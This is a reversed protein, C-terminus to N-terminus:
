AEPEPTTEHYLVLKLTKHTVVGFHNQPDVTQVRYLVDGIQLRDEEVVGAGPLVSARADIKNSIDEPTLTVLEIWIPGGAAVYPVDDGGYLAEDSPDKRWVQASQNFSVIMRAIERAVPSSSVIGPIEGPTPLNSESLDHLADLLAQVIEGVTPAHSSAVTSLGAFASKIASVATSNPADVLDMKAGPAAASKAADYASILTMAAGAALDNLDALRKTDAIDSFITGVHAASSVTATIVVEVCDGGSLAPLTLAAKYFGTALKTVTVAAANSAGNVWLTGTPTSDADVLAGTTPSHIEFTKTLTQGSKLM